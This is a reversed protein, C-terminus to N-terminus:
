RGKRSHEDLWKCVYNAIIGAAVSLLFDVMGHLM